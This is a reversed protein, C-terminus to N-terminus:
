PTMKADKPSTEQHHWTEYTGIKKLNFFAYSTPKSQGSIDGGEIYIVGDYGRQIMFKPFLLSAYESIGAEGFISLMSRLEVPKQSQKLRRLVGLYTQAFHYQWFRNVRKMREDAFVEDDPKHLNIFDSDERSNYGGWRSQFDEKIFELYSEFFDQPVPANIGPNDRARLDLMRAQYPLISVVVIREGRRAQSYKEAEEKRDTAYFGSGITHSGPNLFDEYRFEQSFSFDKGAGHFLLGSSQEFQEKTLTKPDVNGIVIDGIPELHTERPVTETMQSEKQDVTDEM